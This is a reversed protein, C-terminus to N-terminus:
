LHRELRFTSQWMSSGHRKIGSRHWPKPIVFKASTDNVNFNANIWCVHPIALTSELDRIIPYLDNITLIPNYPFLFPDHNYPMSLM